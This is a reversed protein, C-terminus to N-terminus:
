PRAPCPEWVTRVYKLLHTAGSPTAAFSRRREVVLGKTIETLPLKMWDKLHLGSQERLLNKHVESRLTPRALYADLM